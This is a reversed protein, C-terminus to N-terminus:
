LREPAAIGEGIFDSAAFGVAACTLATPASICDPFVSADCVRLNKVKIVQLKENVVFEADDDDSNGMACTGIWHYYSLVFERAYLSMWDKRYWKLLGFIGPLIEKCSRLHRKVIVDSSKWGTYLANVDQQNTLYGPNVLIEVDDLMVQRGGASKKRIRVKVDGTSQPNLLSINV